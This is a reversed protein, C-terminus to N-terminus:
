RRPLHEALLARLRDVDGQEAVGSKPLLTAFVTARGPGTLVFTRPGELWGDYGAWNMREDGGASRTRVGDADVLVEVPGQPSLTEASTRASLRPVLLPVLGFVLSAVILGLPVRGGAFWDVLLVASLLLFVVSTVPHYVVKSYKKRARIALRIAEVHDAREHTFTLCVGGGDDPRPEGTAEAATVAM